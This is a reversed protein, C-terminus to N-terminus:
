HGRCGPQLLSFGPESERHALFIVFRSNFPIAQSPKETSGQLAGAPLAEREVDDEGRELHIEVEGFFTAALLDKVKEVFCGM